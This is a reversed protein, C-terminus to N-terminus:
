ASEKLLISGGNRYDLFLACNLDEKVRHQQVDAQTVYCRGYYKKMDRWKEYPMMFTQDQIGFCVFTDAGMRSSLELVEVQKDSLADKKIRNNSTYKAEFVISAGGMLTGCFDPQAKSVFQGTFRGRTDKKLCRFPEPTKHIDARNKMCYYECAALIRGEFLQGQANNVRSQYSRNM